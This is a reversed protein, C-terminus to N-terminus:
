VRIVCDVGRVTGQNDSFWERHLPCGCEAVTEPNAAAHNIWQGSHTANCQWACWQATGNGVFNYTQSGVVERHEPIMASVDNTGCLKDNDIGSIKTLLVPTYTPSM